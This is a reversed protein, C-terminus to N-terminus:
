LAATCSKTVKIIYQRTWSLAFQYPQTHLVHSWRLCAPMASQVTLLCMVEDAVPHQSYWDPCVPHECVSAACPEHSCSCACCSVRTCRHVASIAAIHDSWLQGRARQAEAGESGQPVGRQSESLERVSYFLPVGFYVTFNAPSAFVAKLAHTKCDM